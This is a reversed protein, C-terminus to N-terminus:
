QEIKKLKFEEINYGYKKKKVNALGGFGQFVKQEIKMSHESPEFNSENTGTNDQESVYGSITVNPLFESYSGRQEELSARKSAREANLKPNNLYAENLSDFLTNARSVSISLTFIFILIIKFLFKM